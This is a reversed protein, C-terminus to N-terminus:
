LGEKPFNLFAYEGFYKIAAEDYARAAEEKTKYKGLNIFKGDVKIYARWKKINSYHYKSVGKYGTTSSKMLEVNAANQSIDAERLNEWKNNNPNRDIHDVYCPIVGTMYLFVLRHAYYRTYNIRIHLYGRKDTNGVKTSKKKSLNKIRTFIGTNPDYHLHEKLEEQSLINRSKM